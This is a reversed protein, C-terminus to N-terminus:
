PKTKGVVNYQEHIKGKYKCTHSSVPYLCYPCKHAKIAALRRKLEAMLEDSTYEELEKGFSM